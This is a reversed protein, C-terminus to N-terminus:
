SMSGPFGADKAPFGCCPATLSTMLAESDGVGADVCAAFFRERHRPFGIILSNDIVFSDAALVELADEQRPPDVWDGDQFYNRLPLAM